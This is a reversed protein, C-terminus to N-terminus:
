NASSKVEKAFFKASATWEDDYPASEFEVRFSDDPAVERVFVAQEGEVREGGCTGKVLISDGSTSIDSEAIEVEVGFQIKTKDKGKWRFLASGSIVLEEGRPTRDVRRESIEIPIAPNGGGNTGRTGCLSGFYHRLDRLSADDQSAPPDYNRRFQNYRERVKTLVTGALQRQADTARSAKASWVHHQLDETMRLDDNIGPDALFVGVLDRRPGQSWRYYNVVMGLDRVLAISGISDPLETEPDIEEDLFSMALAGLRRGQASLEAIEEGPIRSSKRRIVDYLHILHKLNKDESPVPVMRKWEEVLEVVLRHDQLRPWWNMEIAKKLDVMEVTPELILLSTGQEGSEARPIGLQDAIRDAEEDIIEHPHSGESGERCYWGIGTYSTGRLKHGNLYTTGFLASGQDTITYALITYCASAHICASKGFGFSGGTGGQKPSSGLQGMLKYMNSEGDTMTGTLGTTGYDEVCLYRVQRPDPITPPNSCKSHEVFDDDLVETFDAGRIMTFRVSPSQGPRAADVSNQVVERAIAHAPDVGEFTNRFADGEVQRDAQSNLFIWNAM